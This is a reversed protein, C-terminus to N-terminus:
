EWEWEWKRKGEEREERGGRKEEYGDGNEGRGRRV